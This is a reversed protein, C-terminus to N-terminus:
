SFITGEPVEGFAELEQEKTLPPQPQGLTPIIEHVLKHVLYHSLNRPDFKNDPGYQPKVCFSGDPRGSVVLIAM